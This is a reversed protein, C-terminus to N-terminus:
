NKKLINEQFRALEGQVSGDYVRSGLQIMMGGILSPDEKYEVAVKKGTKDCLIKEIRETVSKELSSASIVKARVLETLQDCLDQYAKVIDHFFAFRERDLLYKAYRSMLDSMELQELVETLVRRRDSKITTVESLLPLLRPVERALKQFQMLESLIKDTQDAQEALEILARAYRQSVSGKIM